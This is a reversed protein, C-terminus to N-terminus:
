GALRDIHSHIATAIHAIARESAPLVNVMSLFGHFQGPYREFQVPVGAHILKAAYAEGEDRLPDYEATLILAPPMGALDDARLPSIDPSGRQEVEPAYHNWYWAMIDRNLLLQNEPDLYSPREFDADTVPYVLVQLSVAPGGGDRARRTAVTALNAGASDGLLILPVRKGVIDFMNRDAWALAACADELGAPFPHEPALRYNVMVLACGSQMALKRALTDFDDIHGTVWGGGHLYVILGRPTTDPVLVRLELHQEGVAIRLDDERQMDPGRGFLPRMRATGERVEVPTMETIPKTRAQNVQAVFAESAKDLAM